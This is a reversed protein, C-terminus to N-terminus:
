KENVLYLVEPNIDKHYFLFLADEFFHNCEIYGESVKKVCVVTNVNDISLIKNFQELDMIIETRIQSLIMPANSIQEYCFISVKNDGIFIYKVFHNLGVEKMLKDSVLKRPLLTGKTVLKTEM